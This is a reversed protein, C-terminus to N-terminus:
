LSVIQAGTRLPDFLSAFLYNFVSTLSPIGQGLRASSVRGSLGSGGEGLSRRALIGRLALTGALPSARGAPRSSRPVCSAVKYYLM